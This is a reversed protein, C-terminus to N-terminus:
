DLVFSFLRVSYGEGTGEIEKMSTEPSAGEGKGKGKNSQLFLGVGM